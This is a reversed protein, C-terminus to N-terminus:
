FVKFVHAIEALVGIVLLGAVTALVAPSRFNIFDKKRRSKSVWYSLVVLLGETGSFVAGTLGLILVFQQFGMLYLFFPLGVAILWSFLPPIKFDLVLTRKLTHGFAIFSSFTALFGFFAALWYVEKGVKGQIGVVAEQTTNVGSIGVVIVTFVVYCVLATLFSLCISWFVPRWQRKNTDVLEPVLSLGWFSFLLVGYPLLLQNLDAPLYINTWSFSGRSASALFVLVVAFLVVIVFQLWDLARTEKLLIFAVIFFYIITAVQPSISFFPSFIISLFVGGALLYALLTGMSGFINAVTAIVKGTPGLYLGVYGPLQRRGKTVSILEAFILHIVLALLTVVIGIIIAPVLGVKVVAYPIGFLGVGIMGGAFMAYSAILRKM